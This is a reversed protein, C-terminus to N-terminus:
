SGSPVPPSPSTAALQRNVEPIPQVKWVEVHAGAATHEDVFRDLGARTARYCRGVVAPRLGPALRYSAVARWPRERRV